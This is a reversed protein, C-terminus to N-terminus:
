RELELDILVEWLGPIFGHFLAITLLRGGFVCLIVRESGSQLLKLKITNECLPLETGDTSRGGADWLHILPGLQLWTHM